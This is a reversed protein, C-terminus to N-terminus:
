QAEKPCENSRHGQQLCRFCKDQTPPAYPNKSSPGETLKTQGSVATANRTGDIPPKSQTTVHQKGKNVTCYSSDFSACTPAQARGIPRELQKEVRMALAIADTLTFVPQSSVRDHITTRLGGIFRTIQQQKYEMLDNRSSLRHFEETYVHVSRGGQRCEQYLQFLTQEYDPPLFRAKLLKKMKTWTRVHAKRQRTRSLQLQDWWASAGGELKYAVLKVRKEEPIEMYYFFREVEALWDLFDEIHLHSNFTPLDIKMRFDRSDRDGGNRNGRVGDPRAFVREAYEDDESSEEEYAMPRDMTPVHGLFRGRVSQGRAGEDTCPRDNDRDRNPEVTLRGIAAELCQLMQQNERQFELFEARTLVEGRDVNNLDNEGDQTAM